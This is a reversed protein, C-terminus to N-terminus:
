LVELLEVWASGVENWTRHISFEQMPHMDKDSAINIITSTLMELNGPPLVLCRSKSVLERLCAIDTTVLPLSFTSAELLSLPADSPVLEFPFAILDCSAVHKVLGDRTMFGDHWQIFTELDNLKLEQQLRRAEREMEGQRRRSLVLLKIFPQIKHALEVARILLPLGRLASPSGFYGVVFDQSSYGLSQRMRNIEQLSPKQWHDDVGPPIVQILGHWLDRCLLQQRTTETQVVLGRLGSRQINWRLLCRPSLAGLVHVMSLARGRWLKLLGVRALEAPTYIPSTFVGITPWKRWLRFDQHLFSTLGVNLLVIDPSVESLISELGRAPFAPFVRIDHLRWIPIGNFSECKVHISGDSIFTVTHGLRQLQYGVEYMYRWPQLPFNQNELGSSVLCISKSKL